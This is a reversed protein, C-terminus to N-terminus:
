PHPRLPLDGYRLHIDRCQERQDGRQYRTDSVHDALTGSLFDGIFLDAVDLQQAHRQAVRAPPQASKGSHGTGRQLGHRKSQPRHHQHLCQLYRRQQESQRNVGPQGFVPQRGPLPRPRYQQGTTATTIPGAIINQTSPARIHDPGTAATSSAATDAADQAKNANNVL